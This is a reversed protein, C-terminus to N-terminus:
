KQWRRQDCRVNVKIEKLRWPDVMNGRSFTCANHYNDEKIKEVVRAAKLDINEITADSNYYLTFTYTGPGTEKPDLGYTTVSSCGVLLTFLTIIISRFYDGMMNYQRSSRKRM